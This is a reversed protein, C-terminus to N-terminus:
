SVRHKINTTALLYDVSINFYNAMAVLKEICPETRGNEWNNYTAQSVRFIKAIDRQTLGREMRLEYLRIM